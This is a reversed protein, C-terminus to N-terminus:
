SKRDMDYISVDINDSPRGSIEDFIARIKKSPLGCVDVVARYHGDIAKGVAFPHVRRGLARVRSAFQAAKTAASVSTVERFVYTHGM